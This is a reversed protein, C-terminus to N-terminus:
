SGRQTERGWAWGSYEPRQIGHAGLIVGIQSRHENGHHVLQALITGVTERRTNRVRVESIDVDGALYRELSDTMRDVLRDLEDLDVADSAEVDRDGIVEDTLRLVYYAASGVLHALTRDIAGFTGPGNLVRHEPPLGRVFHILRRTAWMEHEILPVLASGTM